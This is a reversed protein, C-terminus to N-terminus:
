IYLGLFVPARLTCAKGRDFSVLPLAHAIVSQLVDWLMWLRNQMVYVHGHVFSAFPGIVSRDISRLKPYGPYLEIRSSHPNEYEFNAPLAFTKATGFLLSSSLGETEDGQDTPHM